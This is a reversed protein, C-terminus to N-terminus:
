ARRGLRASPLEVLARTGEGPVSDLRLTGDITELAQAAISLGLGFGMGDRGIGTAFRRKLRDVQDTAL